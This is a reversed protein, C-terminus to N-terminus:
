LVVFVCNHAYRYPSLPFWQIPCHHWPTWAKLSKTVCTFPVGCLDHWWIVKRWRYTTWTCHHVEYINLFVCTFQSSRYSGPDQGLKCYSMCKSQIEDYVVIMNQQFVNYTNTIVRQTFPIWWYIRVCHTSLAFFANKIDDHNTKVNWITPWISHAM